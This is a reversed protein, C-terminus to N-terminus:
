GRINCFRWKAFVGTGIARSPLGRKFLIRFNVQLELEVRPALLLMELLRRQCQEWSPLQRRVLCWNGMILGLMRGCSGGPKESHMPLSGSLTPLRGLLPLTRTLTETAILRFLTLYNDSNGGILGPQNNRGMRFSGFLVFSNVRPPFIAM